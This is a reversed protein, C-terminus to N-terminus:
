RQSVVLGSGMVKAAAIRDASLIVESEGQSDIRVLDLTGAGDLRLLLVSVEDEAALGLVTSGEDALLFSVEGDTNM